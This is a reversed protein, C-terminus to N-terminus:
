WKVTVSHTCNYGTSQILIYISYFVFLFQVIGTQAGTQWGDDDDDDHFRNQQLYSFNRGIEKLITM